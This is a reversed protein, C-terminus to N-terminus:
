NFKRSLDQQSLDYEDNIASFTYCFMTGIMQTSNRNADIEATIRRSCFVTIYFKRSNLYVVMVPVIGLDILLDSM